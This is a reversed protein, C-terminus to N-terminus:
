KKEKICTDKDVMRNSYDGVYKQKKAYESFDMQYMKTGEGIVKGQVATDAFWVMNPDSSAIAVSIM